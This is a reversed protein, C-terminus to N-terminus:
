IKKGGQKESREEEALNVMTEIKVVNGKTMRGEKTVQRRGRKMRPDKKALGWQKLM